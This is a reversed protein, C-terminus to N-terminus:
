EKELVQLKGATLQNEITFCCKQCVDYSTDVGNEQTGMYEYAEGGILHAGYKRITIYAAGEGSKIEMGCKDCIVKNVRM